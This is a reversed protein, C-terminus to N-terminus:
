HGLRDRIPDMKGSLDGNLEDHSLAVAVGGLNDAVLPGGDIVITVITVITVIGPM